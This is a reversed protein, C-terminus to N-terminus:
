VSVGVSASEFEGRLVGDEATKLSSYEGVKVHMWNGKARVEYKEGQQLTVDPAKIQLQKEVKEGAAIKIVDEQDFVGSEPIKRNIKLEVSPATEGTKQSTFLFIGMPSARPDFPSSWKLFSVPKDSTNEITVKLSVAPGPPGDPTISSPESIIVKLPVAM